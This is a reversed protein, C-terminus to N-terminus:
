MLLYVSQPLRLPQEQVRLIKLSSTSSARAACYLFKKVERSPDTVSVFQKATDLIHLLQESPLGELTLLHTLEGSANFQNVFNGSSSM